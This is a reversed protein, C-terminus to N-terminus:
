YSRPRDSHVDSGRGAGPSCPVSLVLDIVIASTPVTEVGVQSPLDNSVKARLEM